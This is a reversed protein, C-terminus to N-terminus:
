GEDDYLRVKCLTPMEGFRIGLEDGNLRRGPVWEEGCYRGEEVFVLETFPKELSACTVTFGMGAILFDREGLAIVLGGAPGNGQSIPRSYQIKLAYRAFRLVDYAGRGQLIGRMTGTGRHRTLLPMLEGLLAYTQALPEGAEASHADLVAQVVADGAAAGGQGLGDIGFPSVCLADHEAVAYFASAMAWNNRRMEPIILPNGPLRTYAACEQAFNELYLDPALADLSPAACRWIDHVDAIPGGSPHMGGPEDECQRTWANAFMPIDYAQKGARAVAEVFCATYYAMFIEEADDRFATAWDADLADFNTRALLYPSLTQRHARLYAALPAPIAERYRAQAAPSHDRRTGLLGSENEVQMMVVTRRADVQGIHRMLAAFARADAEMCAQSFCSIAANKRGDRDIARPFRAHDTKVWEPVYTSAANKWTAFWILVLKMGHEEAQRLLGDVLAFDYSGEAPELLEWSVSAIVSNLHLARLRPWIPALYALSSSSSNHLEGSLLIMPKDDVMLAKATGHAALYPQKM